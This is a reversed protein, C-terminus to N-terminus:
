GAVLRYVEFAEAFINGSQVGRVKALSKIFDEHFYKRHSQSSYANLAALKSEINAESLKIFCQTNFLSNNWPLEYGLLSCNKFARRSEAYIVEHDQHIDHAAPTFVLDPQIIKNMKLMEDLIGQRNAPFVRVDFNLFHLNAEKIGLIGTAKRCELRLIDPELAASISKRCDSFAAYFIESGEAAYRAIAGGCGLEGDDTHPALILIRNTNIM